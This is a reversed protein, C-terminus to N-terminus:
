LLIAMRHNWLSQGLSQSIIRLSTMAKICHIKLKRLDMGQGALSEKKEQTKQENM